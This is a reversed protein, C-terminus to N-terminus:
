IVNKENVKDNSFSKCDKRKKGKSYAAEYRKM